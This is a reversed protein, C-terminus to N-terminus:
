YQAARLLWCHSASINQNCKNTFSHPM